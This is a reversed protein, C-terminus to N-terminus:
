DKRDVTPVDPRNHFWRIAGQQTRKIWADKCANYARIDAPHLAYADRKVRAYDGRVDPHARLFACFALHRFVDPDDAQYIHVNHTRVGNNDKTFLRRGPLGFEGWARYGTQTLADTCRDVELLDRVEPLLDIVPKAALGPVSTSGIHHVALVNAGLLSRLALAERAFAAPWQPSYAEFTYRSRTDSTPPM